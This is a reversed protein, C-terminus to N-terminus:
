EGKCSFVYQEMHYQGAASVDASVGEEQRGSFHWRNASSEKMTVNWSSKVAMQMSFYYILIKREWVAKWILLEQNIVLSIKAGVHM